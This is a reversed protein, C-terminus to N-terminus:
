KNFIGCEDICHFISTIKKLKLQYFINRGERHSVLVGSNKMKSLHHSLLTAEIQTIKIIEAVSLCGHVDLIDLIQLRAPFAISKFINAIIRIEEPNYRSQTLM